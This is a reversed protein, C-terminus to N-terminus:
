QEKCNHSYKDYVGDWFTTRKGAGGRGAKNMTEDIHKFFWHLAMGKCYGNFEEKTLNSSIQMLSTPCEKM